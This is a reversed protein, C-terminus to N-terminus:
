LATRCLADARTPYMSFARDLGVIRFIRRLDDDDSAICLERGRARKLGAVLVGLGTSDILTSAALDIVIRDAGSDIGAFLQEKLASATFADVDGCVGIVVVGQGVSELSTEMSDEEHHAWPKDV